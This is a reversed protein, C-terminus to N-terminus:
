SILMCVLLWGLCVTDKSVLYINYTPSYYLQSRMLQRRNTLQIVSKMDPLKEKLSMRYSLGYVSRVGCDDVLLLGGVESM